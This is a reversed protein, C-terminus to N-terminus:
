VLLLVSLVTYIFYIHKTFIRRWFCPALHTIHFHAMYIYRWSVASSMKHWNCTVHTRTTTTTIDPVLWMELDPISFLMLRHLHLHRYRSRLRTAYEPARQSCESLLASYKHRWESAQLWRENQLRRRFMLCLSLISAFSAVNTFRVSLFNAVCFIPECIYWLRASLCLKGTKWIIQLERVESRTWM